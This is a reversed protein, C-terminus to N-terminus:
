RGAPSPLESRREDVVITYTLAGGPQVTTVGDTKTISLDAQPAPIEDAGADFGGRAPRAHGDIDTTPAALSSPPQQYSPVAKNAAGPTSAGALDHRELHYDGLMKPPLDLGVLIAGLFNPNTRWPAFVLSM